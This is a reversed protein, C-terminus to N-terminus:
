QVWQTEMWKVWTIADELTDRITVRGDTAPEHVEYRGHDDEEIHYRPEIM